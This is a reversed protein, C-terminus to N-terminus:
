GKTVFFHFEKGDEKLQVQHETMNVFSVVDRTSSPDTAKLLIIQGSIAKNLAQKLKLLPMPCVFERADVEIPDPKVEGDLILIFKNLLDICLIKVNIISKSAM